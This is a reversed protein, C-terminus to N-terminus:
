EGQEVCQRFLRHFFGVSSFFPSSFHNQFIIVQTRINNTKKEKLSAAGKRSFSVPLPFIDLPPAFVRKYTMSEVLLLFTKSLRGQSVAVNSSPNLYCRNGQARSELSCSGGQDLGTDGM